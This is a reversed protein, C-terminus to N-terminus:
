LTGTPYENEHCLYRINLPEMRGLRQARGIVQRELDKSMRHYIIIDDTIQLNLGAGFNSANLLLVQYEGSKYKTIINNIRAASGSIKSFRVGNSIFEHQILNFTDEYESFVLLKKNPNNKIFKLLTAMKKLLEDADDEKNEEKKKNNIDVILHIKNMDVTTRCLPCEKKPSYTIAM